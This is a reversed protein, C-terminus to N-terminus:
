EPATMKAFLTAVMSDVFEEYGFLNRFSECNKNFQEYLKM